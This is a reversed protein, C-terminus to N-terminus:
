EQVPQFVELAGEILERLAEDFAAMGALDDSAPRQPFGASARAASLVRESAEVLFWDILARGLNSDMLRPGGLAASLEAKFTDFGTRAGQRVRFKLNADIATEAINEEEAANREVPEEPSSDAEVKPVKARTMNGGTPKGTAASLAQQALAVDEDEFIDISESGKPPAKGM